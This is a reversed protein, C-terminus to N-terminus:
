FYILALLICVWFFLSSCVALLFGTLPNANRLMWNYIM